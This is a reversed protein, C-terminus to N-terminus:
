EIQECYDVMLEVDDIMDDLVFRGAAKSVATRGSKANCDGVIHVVDNPGAITEIM